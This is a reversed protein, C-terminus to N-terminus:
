IEQLNEILKGKLYCAENIQNQIYKYKTYNKREEQIYSIIRYFSVTKWLHHQNLLGQNPQNESIPFTLVSKSQIPNSQNWRDSIIM